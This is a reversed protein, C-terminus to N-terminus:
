GYKEQDLNQVQIIEGALQQLGGDLTILPIELLAATAVYFSAASGLGCAAALHAATQTLRVDMKVLSLGPLHSLQQVAQEALRPDGTQGSIVGAVEVLLIGPAIFSVGARRRTDLWARAVRHCPDQPVLRAVWLSADVVICNM